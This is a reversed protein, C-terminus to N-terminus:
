TELHEDTEAPYYDDEDYLGLAEGHSVWVWEGGVGDSASMDFAGSIGEEEAAKKKLPARAGGHEKQTAKMFTPPAGRSNIFEELDNIVISKGFNEAINKTQTSADSKDFMTKLKAIQEPSLINFEGPLRGTALYSARVSAIFTTPVLYHPDISHGERLIMKGHRDENMSPDKIYHKYNIPPKNYLDGPGDLMSAPGSFSGPPFRPTRTTVEETPNTSLSPPFVSPPSRCIGKTVEESPYTFDCFPLFGTGHISGPAPFSQTRTPRPNPVEKSLEHKHTGNLNGAFSNILNEWEEQSSLHNNAPTSM